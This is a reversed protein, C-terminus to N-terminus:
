QHCISLFFNSLHYLRGFKPSQSTLSVPISFFFNSEVSNFKQKLTPNRNFDNSLLTHLMERNSEWNKLLVGVKNIKDLNIEGQQNKWPRREEEFLYDNLFLAIYPIFPVATKRNEAFIARYKAFDHESSLMLSFRECTELHKKQVNRWTESLLQVCESQLATAIAQSAAYDNYDENLTKLISVWIEITRGRAKPTEQKVIETCVLGRLQNLWRLYHALPELTDGTELWKHEIIETVQIQQIMVIQLFIIEKAIEAVTFKSTLTENKTFM